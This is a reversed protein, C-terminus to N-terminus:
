GSLWWSVDLLFKFAHLGGFFTLSPDAVIGNKRKRNQSCQPESLISRLLFSFSIWARSGVFRTPLGKWLDSRRASASSFLGKQLWRGAELQYPDGPNVKRSRWFTLSPKKHALCLYCREETLGEAAVQVRHILLTAAM